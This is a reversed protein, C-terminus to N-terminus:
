CINKSIEILKTVLDKKSKVNFMKAITRYDKVSLLVCLDQIFTLNNMKVNQLLARNKSIWEKIQMLKTSLSNQYQEQIKLSAAKVGILYHNPDNNACKLSCYKKNDYPKCKFESSLLCM